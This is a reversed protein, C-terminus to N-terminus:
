SANQRAEKRPSVSTVSQLNVLSCARMFVYYMCRLLSFRHVLLLWQCLLIYAGAPAPFLTVAGVHGEAVGNDAVRTLDGTHARAACVHNAAQLLAAHPLQCVAHAGLGLDDGPLLVAHADVAVADLVGDCLRVQVEEPVHHPAHARTM